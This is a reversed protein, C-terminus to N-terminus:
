FRMNATATLRNEDYTANAVNSDRQTRRFTLAGDLDKAFQHSLGFSLSLIDDQRAAGGTVASDLSNRIFALSSNATTRLSLRYSVSGTVGQTRDQANDLLPYLRRTDHASLGFGLRGVDWSMGATLNKIIFIRNLTGVSIDKRQELQELSFGRAVLEFPTALESSCNPLPPRPNIDTPFAFADPKGTVPDPCVWFTRNSQELLQQSIDSVDESYRVTWNSLRTRHSGALSFTRGFYREGVSAEVSTLRTPSWGFGASYSSGSTGTASLYDNWDQGVTGFVRFKRTLMYGATASASELTTDVGNRNQTKRISYNLGWNLDGFRPGSALSAALANSAINSAVNNQFIAGSNTYRVLAKAFSGFRKQIYPSLSYTGVTTRNSNNISADAPSGLLSILQQSINASGDVFLFNEVLEAKGIANLNHYFNDNQDGGFRKVGTLGYKLTAQVRRSGESHLTFGPTASLILADKPDTASQNVNDTYIASASLTPEFRWEAAHAAPAFALAM